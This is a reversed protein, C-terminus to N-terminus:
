SRWRSCCCTLGTSCGPGDRRWWGKAVLVGWGAARPDVSLGLFAIATEVGTAPGISVFAFTLLPPLANPGIHRWLVRWSSAGTARAAEIYERARIEVVAVRVIRAAFPAGLLGIVLVLLLLSRHSRTSLILLAVVIPPVGLATDVIRGLLADIRGGAFGSIGGVLMGLMTSLQVAGIGIVVSIHAGHVVRAFLDCGQEDTGFWHAKSPSLLDQFRGDRGRIGCRAPDHTAPSPTVFLGPVVAMTVFAASAASAIALALQRRRPM